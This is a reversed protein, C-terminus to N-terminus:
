KLGDDYGDHGDHGDDDDDSLSLESCQSSADSGSEADEASPDTPFAVPVSRGIVAVAGGGARSVPRRLVKGERHGAGVRGREEGRITSDADLRLSKLKRNLLRASLSPM